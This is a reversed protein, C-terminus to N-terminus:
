GLGICEMCIRIAKTLVISMEGTSLGYGIFGLSLLLLGVHIIKM